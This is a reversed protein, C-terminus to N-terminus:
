LLCNHHANLHTLICKITFSFAMENSGRAFVTFNINYDCLIFTCKTYPPGGFYQINYKLSEWQKGRTREEKKGPGTGTTSCPLMPTGPSSQGSHLTVVKVSCGGQDFREPTHWTDWRLWWGSVQDGRGRFDLGECSGSPLFFPVHKYVWRSTSGIVSFWVSKVLWMLNQKLFFLLFM